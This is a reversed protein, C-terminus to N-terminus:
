RTEHLTYRQVLRSSRNLEKLLISDISDPPGSQVYNCHGTGRSSGARSLSTDFQFSFRGMGGGRVSERWSHRKEEERSSLYNDRSPLRAKLAEFCKGGVIGKWQRTKHGM